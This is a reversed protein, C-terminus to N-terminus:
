IFEQNRWVYYISDITLRPSIDIAVLRKAGRAQLTRGDLSFDLKTIYVHNKTGRITPSEDFRDFLRARKWEEDSIEERTRTRARYRVIAGSRAENGKFRV